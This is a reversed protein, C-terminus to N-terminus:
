LFSQITRYFGEEIGITPTWNLEKIKEISPNLRSLSSRLYQMNDVPIDVRVGINREPFLESIIDALERISLEAEPNGINYAERRAGRLLVTLFGITADSIYCFPRRALGNSKLVIERGAVVDAIFDAFVRGDDLSVGPGYTHFPRVIVTHIGYQQDCSVCMTEGMRKSEAYCSRVNMPDLYGYDWEETRRSSDNPIGYVEGTSFFMFKETNYKIAHNLLHMTGVSNPLLTGVPDIWYYKPSAQSASHIIINVNQVSDPLPYSIDHQLFSVEQSNFYDSLRVQTQPSSRTVCIIKIGLQKERSATVLSKILYSALFGWGGTILITKNRLDEWPLDVSTIIKLDEKIILNM